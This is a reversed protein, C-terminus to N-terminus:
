SRRPPRFPPAPGPLPGSRAANGLLDAALYLILLLTGLCTLLGNFHDYAFYATSPHLAELFSFYRNKQALMAALNSNTQLLGPFATLSLLLVVLAELSVPGSGSQQQDTSTM